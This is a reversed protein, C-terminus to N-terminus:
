KTWNILGVPGQTQFDKDHFTRLVELASIVGLIGDYRGGTPQTDLHSGMMVPPADNKKGPRVAFINGMQDITVKCGISEAQEILWRRVKKDDDDLSLRAMGTETPHRGGGRTLKQVHLLTHLHKQPGVYEGYRHAKGFECTGHIANMLRSGDITLFGPERHCPEEAQLQAALGVPGSKVVTATMKNSGSTRSTRVRQTLKYSNCIPASDFSRQVGAPSLSNLIGRRSLTAM